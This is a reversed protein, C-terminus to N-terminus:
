ALVARVRAEVEAPGDAPRLVLFTGARRPGHLWSLLWPRDDRPQAPDTWAVSAAAAPAEAATALLALDDRVASGVVPFLEVGERTRELVLARGGDLGAVWPPVRPIDGRSAPDGLLAAVARARERYDEEPLRLLCPAPCSRVQAHLCGLGLPLEPHPEFVHDCPRLPLRDQLASRAREAARRDRFPGFLEGAGGARATLRPFREALDLHLFAPRKLDRRASLPVRAMAREFLVRQHFASLAPLLRLSCAVPSLDLPPRRGPKPPPGQGLQRAAWARLNTARGM